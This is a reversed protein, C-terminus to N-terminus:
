QSQQRQIKAVEPEQMWRQFPIQKELSDSSDKRSFLLPMSIALFVMGAIALGGATFAMVGGGFLGSVLISAFILSVATLVLLILGCVKKHNIQCRFIRGDSRGKPDLSASEENLPPTQTLKNVEGYSM